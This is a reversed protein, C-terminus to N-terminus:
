ASRYNKWEDSEACAKILANRETLFKTLYQKLFVADAFRGLFGAPSEFSFEDIMITKDVATEFIHIHHIRKFIGAVMEDTFSHPRHFATIQSTLQQWVGFHRARWTVTEGLEILGSTRGAIAKEHTRATSRQHLDISRSLDFCREAPAYIETRLIIIPM